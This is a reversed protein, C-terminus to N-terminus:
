VKKNIIADIADVLNEAAYDAESKEGKGTMVSITKCGALDGMRTDAEKDGIMYSNSLDIDFDRAADLIMKPKPKRCECGADPGHPCFYVADIRGGNRKIKNLMNKTFIEYDHQTYYGRGIGSQSTIIIIRYDTKALRALADLVGPIFELDEIRHVYQKDVNITGDRDLFVAKNMYNQFFLYYIFKVGM